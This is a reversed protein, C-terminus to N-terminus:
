FGYKQKIHRKLFRRATMVEMYQQAILGSMREKGERKVIRWCALLHVSTRTMPLIVRDQLDWREQYNSM